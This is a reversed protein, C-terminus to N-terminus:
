LKTLVVNDPVSYNRKKTSDFVWTAQTTSGPLLTFDVFHGTLNPAKDIERYSILINNNNNNQLYCFLPPFLINNYILHNTKVVGNEAYYYGGELIDMYCNIPSNFTGKPIYKGIVKQIVIKFVTSGNTYQWTGVWQDFKNDTDKFYADTNALSFTNENTSNMSIIPANAPVQAKCFTLTLFTIIYFIKKM